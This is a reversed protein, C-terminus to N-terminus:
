SNEIGATCDNYKQSNAQSSVHSTIQFMRIKILNLNIIIQLCFIRLDGLVCADDVLNVHKEVRM